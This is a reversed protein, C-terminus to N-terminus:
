TYFSFSKDIFNLENEKVKSELMTNSSLCKFYYYYNRERPWIMGIYM